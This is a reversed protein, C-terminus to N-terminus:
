SNNQALIKTFAEKDSSAAMRGITSRAPEIYAAVLYQRWLNQANAIANKIAEESPEGDSLTGPAEAVYKGDADTHVSNFMGSLPSGKIQEVADKRLKDLPQSGTFGAFQLLGASLNLRGFAEEIRAQIDGVEMPTSITKFDDLAREQARLLDIRLEERRAVTDSIHRLEHIATRIWHATAGPTGVM